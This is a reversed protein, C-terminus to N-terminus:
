NNPLLQEFVESLISAAGELVDKAKAGHSHVRTAADLLVDVRLQNILVEPIGLAGALVLFM